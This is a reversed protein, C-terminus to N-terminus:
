LGQSHEPELVTTTDIFPIFAIIFRSNEARFNNQKGEVKTGDSIQFRFSGGAYFGNTPQFNARLSGAYSKKRQISILM